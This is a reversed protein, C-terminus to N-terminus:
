LGTLNMITVIFLFILVVTARRPACGDALGSQTRVSPGQTIMRLCEQLGDSVIVDLVMIHLHTQYKQSLMRYEEFVVCSQKNNPSKTKLHYKTRNGYMHSVSWRYCFTPYISHCTPTQSSKNTVKPSVKSREEQLVKKTLNFPVTSLAM